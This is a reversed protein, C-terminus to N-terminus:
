GGSYNILLGAFRQSAAVSLGDPPRSARDTPLL